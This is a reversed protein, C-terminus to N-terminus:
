SALTHTHTHTNIIHVINTITCQQRYIPINNQLGGAVRLLGGRTTIYHSCTSGYDCMIYM